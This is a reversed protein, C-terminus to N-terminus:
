NAYMLGGMGNEIRLINYNVGYISHSDLGNGSAMLRVSDLRSFNLSGTPQFKNTDLCFSHLFFSKTDVAGGFFPCHYYLPAQNYHPTYLRPVGIQVGNVQIQLTQTTPSSVLDFGSALFKIPHNFNLEHQSSNAQVVSQQTQTILMNIPKSAIEAREAEDLYIYDAWCEYTGPEPTKWTVRIEVDHYQLAVLPIASQYNECFWFHLPYFSLPASVSKTVSSVTLPDGVYLSFDSTQTDIVQGGILFEVKDIETDGIIDEGGTSSTRTLYVYGLMDGKREFRVTSIGGPSPNGILIQRDVVHSFNTHRRYVSRFFSVEPNGVLHSDQAGIAVLQTIGGSM